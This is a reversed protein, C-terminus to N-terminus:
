RPHRRILDRIAGPSCLIAQCRDPRTLALLWSRRDLVRSGPATRQVGMGSTLPNNQDKNGPAKPM